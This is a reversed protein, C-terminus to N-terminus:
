LLYVICHNTYIKDKRMGGNPKMVNQAKEQFGSSSSFHIALPDRTALKMPTTTQSMRVAIPTVRPKRPIPM